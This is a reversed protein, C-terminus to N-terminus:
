LDKLIEDTIPQVASVVDDISVFFDVDVIINDLAKLKLDLMEEIDVPDIGDKLLEKIDINVVTGDILNVSLSQLMTIPVEDKEVQKLISKWQDRLTVNIKKLKSRPKKRPQVSM